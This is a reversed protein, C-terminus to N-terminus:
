STPEFFDTFTPDATYHDGKRFNVGTKVSKFQGEQIVVDVGTNAAKEITVLVEGSAVRMIYRDGPVLSEWHIRQAQSRKM